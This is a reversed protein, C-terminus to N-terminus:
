TSTAAFQHAFLSRHYRGQPAHNRNRRGRALWIKQFAVENPAYAHLLPFAALDGNVVADLRGRDSWTMHSKGDLVHRTVVASRKKTRHRHLGDSRRRRFAWRMWLRRRWGSVRWAQRCDRMSARRCPYNGSDGDLYMWNHVAERVHVGLETSKGMAVLMALTLLSRTRRDLGPRGWILGWGAETALEQM